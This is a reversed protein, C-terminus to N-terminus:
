NATMTQANKKKTCTGSASARYVLSSYVFGFSKLELTQQTATYESQLNALGSNKKVNAQLHCIQFFFFVESPM